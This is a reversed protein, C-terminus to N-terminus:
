KKNKKSSTQMLKNSIKHMTLTADRLECLESKFLFFITM